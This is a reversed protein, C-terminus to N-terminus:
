HAFNESDARRVHGVQHVCRFIQKSHALHEAAKRLLERALREDIRRLRQGLQAVIGLAHGDFM